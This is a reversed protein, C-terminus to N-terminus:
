KYTSEMQGKLWEFPKPMAISVCDDGHVATRIGRGKCYFVCPSGTGYIFSITFLMNACENAWNQAAGRTGYTSYNFRGRKGEDGPLKDKDALQVYVESRAKAHFFARSMDNVMVVEGNNASTTMSSRSTPAELPPTGAPLDGRARTSIERAVFRPKYNANIQDGMRIDVWRVTAFAKELRTTASRPPCKTACVWRVCM